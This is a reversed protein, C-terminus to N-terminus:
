KKPITTTTSFKNLLYNGVEAEVQEVYDKEQNKKLKNLQQIMMFFPTLDEGSLIKRFLSYYRNSFEPFKNEMNTNFEEPNENRLKELEPTKMYLLVDYFDDLLKDVDPINIPNESNDYMVKNKNDM